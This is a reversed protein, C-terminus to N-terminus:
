KRAKSVRIKKIRRPDAELVEFDFGSDHSIVEGRTPVRGTLMFILGGITDIDEDTEDPALDVGLVKEFEELTARAQVVYSGDSKASWDAVEEGDHEDAIEGVLEEVLDEITVLGDVGGFEDVVLAMHLREAQMKELLTGAQMSPPVYLVPRILPKLNFSRPKGNFGYKLAVDKLHIMGLPDDLSDKYIPLRSFGSNKFLKVLAKMDTDLAISTVDARPIKVDDVRMGNLRRLGIQAAEQQTPEDQPTEAGLIRAFFGRRPEPEDLASLAASSSGELTDGM